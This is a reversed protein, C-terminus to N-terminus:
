GGWPGFGGARQYLTFAARANVLPDLLQMSSTVGTAALWSRHASWHIQFLGYCCSNNVNSQHNSERWAIELAREELDDPWVDRIIQVARSPSVAAPRSPATTAPAPAVTTSPVRNSASATAAPKPVTVPAATPPAAPTAAGPPLCISRGPILSSDVSAGNVALLERLSVGAADALRIWYDGAVVEYRAGCAPATVPVTAATGGEPVEELAASAAASGAADVADSAVTTGPVAAETGSTAEGPASSEISIAPQSDAVVAPPAPESVSDAPAGSVVLRSNAASADDGSATFGVVVPSALTVIVALAGFRALLPDIGGRSARQPEPEVEWGAGGQEDVDDAPGGQRDPLRDSVDPASEAGGSHSREADVGGGLLQDWWRGIAVGLGKRGASRPRQPTWEAHEGWFEDALEPAADPAHRDTTM